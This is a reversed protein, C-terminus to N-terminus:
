KWFVTLFVVVFAVVVILVAAVVIFRSDDTPEWMYEKTKRLGVRAKKRQDAARSLKDADKEDTTVPEDAKVPVVIADADPKPIASPGNSEDSKTMPLEGVKSGCNYCFTTGGRVDVGCQGCTAKETITEAM